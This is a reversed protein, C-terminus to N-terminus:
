SVSIVIPSEGEEEKKQFSKEVFMYVNCHPQMEAIM